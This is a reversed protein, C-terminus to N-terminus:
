IRRTAMRLRQNKLAERQKIGQDRSTRLNADGTQTDSLYAALREVTALQFVDVVAIPKSFQHKLKQVMQLVLLSHGGLEFFNDQVGIRDIGLLEQWIEAVISEARGAPKKYKNTAPKKFTPEPLSKRDAKGSQTLPITDMAIFHQPVMYAPLKSELYLRLKAIDVKKEPKASYYAVLRKDGGPADWVSAVSRSVADFTDITAEIEGLEIRLGRIKVQFDVRGLYEIAGDKLYRALDGSKYLRASPDNSFPDPIFREATLDPRNLYGRAVQVGGIYLEGSVGVPVPSLNPDLIYIQTNAVPYGIPVITSDAHKRCKWYTVDVAAETPGYLNHLQSDLREFFKRQLEVSLAEGSCIVRKLSKCESVHDEELFFELMSPVFHMTTISNNKIIEVLYASDKHGGPEAIILSAGVQLPWFFEWVSVDFSYPTKQLVHDAPTLAYKEQMWILRNVIGRHENVVGKPRGTSGSTFIVYAPNKPTAGGIPNKTSEGVIQGWGSDLCIVKAQHEPLHDVLHQQTLLVSVNTDAMMFELRGTPYEPDLPVYAGGAKIIGYIAIVMELSREAFLGVMVEPDVGQKILYHALQNSRENLEQYTLQGNKSSIAVADPSRLVQEEFLHVLTKEAPYDRQTSNWETLIQRQERETLLPLESLRKHPTEAISGLLIELHGVMRKITQPDFLDTNYEMRGSIGGDDEGIYMTLDFKSTQTDITQPTIILGPLEASTSTMNWFAIIVQFLPSHSTDRAPSLAEVLQEFPLDQHDYAGLTTERVKRLLDVFRPNESLDTRLVLTNVFFGIVDEIETLNRNAVPTGVAFDTQGTYRFLLVKFAAQMTMFLTVENQQSFDKLKKAIGRPITFNENAGKNTQVAPRPRDIPLQLTQLGDSLKTRWYTLHEDLVRGALWERQWIAYDAYQVPLEALPSPQGQIFAQYLAVLERRVIDISWADSIIHHITLVLLHEQPELRVLLARFLQGAFLDFPRQAEESALRQARHMRETKNSGHLEVIQLDFAAPPQIVQVPRNGIERFVTRLVEHRRVIETLSRELIDIRLDGQLYIGTAINYAASEPDLQSLFWLRQQAFSLPLDSDRCVANIPLVHLGQQSERVAEIHEVIGSVTPAEFFSRLSLELSFVERIRSIVRTALLSHGGLEFFNDQIGIRKIGLMARWIDAVLEETQTRAPIFVDEVDPRLRDPEPLASRDVKGNATLPLSDLIMFVSPVMYEPLKKKLVTRMASVSFAAEPSDFAVYAVLQKEGGIDDQGMVVAEMVGNIKLLAAEIEEPEIRFGRIKVQFDKRGIFKITGDPLRRGLDGSRYLRAGPIPNFPDPVFKQATLSPQHLYGTSISSGGICIEGAIGPPVMNLREDLIHIQIGKISQGLPVVDLNDPFTDPIDYIVINGSTETQGYMNVLQIRQPFRKRWNEPIRTPLKGGSSLILRLRNALLSQRSNENLSDITHNLNEWFAAVTDLVTVGQKKILKLLALPNTREEDNAIVISAGSCLPAFFQRLSSTFAISATHLYVDDPRIEIRNLFAKINSALSDHRMMVGKPEGTSGSTYIIHSLNGEPLDEHLNEGADPFSQSQIRDACIIKGPFETFREALMSNTLLIQANCQRTMTELREDPFNSELPIYIGGSKLVALVAIVLEAKREICVAVHFSPTDVQSKIIRAVRNAQKNLEGYTICHKGSFVAIADPNRLAQAEFIAHICLNSKLTNGVITETNLTLKKACIKEINALCHEKTGTAGHSSWGNPICLANNWLSYHGGNNIVVTFEEESSYGKKM